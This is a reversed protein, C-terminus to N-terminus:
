RLISGGGSDYKWFPHPDCYDGCRKPFTDSTILCEHDEPFTFETKEAAGDNPACAICHKCDKEEM